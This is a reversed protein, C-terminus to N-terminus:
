NMLRYRSGNKIRDSGIKFIISEIYILPLQKLNTFVDYTGRGVIYGREVSSLFMTRYTNATLSLASWLRGVRVHWNRIKGTQVIERERKLKLFFLFDIVIQSIIRLMKKACFVSPFNYNLKKGQCSIWSTELGDAVEEVSTLGPWNPGSRCM